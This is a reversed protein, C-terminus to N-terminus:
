RERYFSWPARWKLQRAASRMEGCNFPVLCIDDRFIPQQPAPCVGELEARVRVKVEGLSFVPLKIDQIPLVPGPGAKISHVTGM